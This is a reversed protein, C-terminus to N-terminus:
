KPFQIEEQVSEGVCLVMSNLETDSCYREFLYAVKGRLFLSSLAPPEGEKSGKSLFARVDEIQERSRAGPFDLLDTHDLFEWPSKDIRVSLEAILATIVARELEAKGGDLTHTLISSAKLKNLHHLTDVNIISEKRPILAEIACYSEESFNLSNLAQVLKIYLDTFPEVDNWILSFLKARDSLKLYPALDATRSWYHHRLIRVHPSVSGFYREFYEELDYIREKELLDVTTGKKQEELEDM